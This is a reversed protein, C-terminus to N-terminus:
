PGVTLVLTACNGLTGAVPSQTGVIYNGNGPLLIATTTFGAGAWAAQVNNRRTGVVNPVTCVPPPTPTASPSPSPTVSAGPSASAGFSVSSFISSTGGQVWLVALIVAIAVGGIVLAYEAPSQGRDDRWGGSGM